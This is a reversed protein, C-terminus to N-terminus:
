GKVPTLTLLAQDFWWLQMDGAATPVLVADPGWPKGACLVALAGPAQHIADPAEAAPVYSPATCVELAPDTPRAKDDKIWVIVDPAFTLIAGMYQPDDKIIATIQQDPDQLDVATVQWDGTPGSQAMGLGPLFALAFGTLFRTTKM